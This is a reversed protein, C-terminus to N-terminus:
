KKTKRKVISKKKEEIRLNKEHILQEQIRKQKKNIAM